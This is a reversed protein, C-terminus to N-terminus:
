QQHRTHSIIYIYEVSIEVIITHGIDDAKLTYTGGSGLPTGDDRIWEYEHGGADSPIFNVVNVTLTEGYITDGTIKIVTPLTKPTSVYLPGEEMQGKDYYHDKEVGEDDAASRAYIEYTKNPVVTFIGTTNGWDIPDAGLKIGYEIAQGTYHVLEAFVKIEKDTVNLINTTPVFPKIGDGNIKNGTVSGYLLGENIIVGNNEITKGSPISLSAPQAPPIGDKITFTYGVEIELDQNLTVNGYVTGIKTSTIFIIGDTVGNKNIGSGINSAYVIANGAMVLSGAGTSNGSGIGTASVNNPGYARVIGGNITIPNSSSGMSGGGIGGCDDGGTATIDGGSITIKGWNSSYRHGGIGAGGDDGGSGAGSVANLSGGSIAETITLEAGSPVYLGARAEGAKLENTGVLTINAKSTGTLLFPCNDNSVGTKASLNIKVNDLTVNATAGAQIEIRDVNTEAGATAMEITLAAGTKIKLVHAVDDFEWDAPSTGGTIKFDGATTQANVGTVILLAIILLRYKMKTKYHNKAKDNFDASIM